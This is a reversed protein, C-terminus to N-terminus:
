GSTLNNVYFRITINGHSAHNSARLLIYTGAGGPLKYQFKIYDSTRIMSVVAGPKARLSTGFTRFDKEIAPSPGTFGKDTTYNKVAMNSKESGRILYSLMKAFNDANDTWGEAEILSWFKDLIISFAEKPNAAIEEDLGELDQIRGGMIEYASEISLDRVKILPESVYKLSWNSYADNCSLIIDEEGRLQPIYHVTKPNCKLQATTKQIIGQGLEAAHTQVYKIMQDFPFQSLYKRIKQLQEDRNANLEATSIGDLKLGQSILYIVVEIEFVYGLFLAVHRLNNNVSKRFQDSQKGNWAGAPDINKAMMLGKEMRYAEAVISPKPFKFSVGQNTVRASALVQSKFNQWWAYLWKWVETVFDGVSSVFDRFGM